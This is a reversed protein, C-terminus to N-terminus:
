LVVTIPTAKSWFHPYRKVKRGKGTKEGKGFNGKRGKGEKGMGKGM